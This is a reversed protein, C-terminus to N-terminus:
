AQVERHAQFLGWRLSRRQALRMLVLGTMCFLLLEALPAALWVGIEGVSNALIFTMPIAFLYPKSLGLVAARLADGTAQFHMAIMMMPGALFFGVPLM